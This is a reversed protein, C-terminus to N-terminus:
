SKGSGRSHGFTRPVGYTPSPAEKSAEMLVDAEHILHPKQYIDRGM